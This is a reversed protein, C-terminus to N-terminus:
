HRLQVQRTKEISLLENDFWGSSEQSGPQDISVFTPQPQEWYEQEVSILQSVAVGVREPGIPLALELQEDDLSGLLITGNHLEVQWTGDSIPEISRCESLFPTFNGLDSMLRISSRDADVLFDDGHSTQVRFVPGTPWIEEGQTQFRELSAMPIDVPVVGGRLPIGVALEPDIWEGRLESGNRLWVTVHSNAGGLDTGEVPVVEGVDELPIELLGAAGRLYLIDTNLGGLLVQGDNLAVQVTSDGYQATCGTMVLMVIAYEWRM